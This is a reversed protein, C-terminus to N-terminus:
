VSHVNEQHVGKKHSGFRIILALFNYVIWHHFCLGIDLLFQVTIKMFRGHIESRCIKLDCAYMDKTVHLADRM